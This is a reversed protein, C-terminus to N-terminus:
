ALSSQVWPLRLVLQAESCSCCCLSHVPNQRKEGGRPFPGKNLFDKVEISVM